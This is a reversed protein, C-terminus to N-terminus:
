WEEENTVIEVFKKKPGREVTVGNQSIAVTFVNEERGLKKVIVNYTGNLETFEKKFTAPGTGPLTVQPARLGHINLHLDHDTVSDQVIIEYLFNTFANVTRLAVLIVTVNEREKYKPAILLRYEIPFKPQVRKGKKM